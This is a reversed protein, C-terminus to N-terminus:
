VISCMNHDGSCQDGHRDSHEFQGLLGEQVQRYNGQHQLFALCFLEHLKFELIPNSMNVAVELYISLAVISWQVAM